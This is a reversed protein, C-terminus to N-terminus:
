IFAWKPTRRCSAAKIIQEILFAQVMFVDVGTWGASLVMLIDEIMWGM